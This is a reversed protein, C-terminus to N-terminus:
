QFYLYLYFAIELGPQCPQSKHCDGDGGGWDRRHDFADKGLLGESSFDAQKLVELIFLNVLFVKERPTEYNDLYEIGCPKKKTHVTVDIAPTRSPLHTGNAFIPPIDDSEIGGEPKTDRPAAKKEKLVEDPNDRM